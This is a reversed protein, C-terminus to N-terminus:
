GQWGEPRVSTRGPGTCPARPPDPRVPELRLSRDFPLSVGGFTDQQIMVRATDVSVAGVYGLVPNVENGVETLNGILAAPLPANLGGAGETLGRIVNLYEYAGPSICFQELDFLLGGPRNYDVRGAEIGSILSGDSFEDSSANLNGGKRTIWCRTDCLYDWRAVFRTDPGPICEGNRWRSRVCEACVTIEEFTSFRWRYFNPEGAPDRVDVRLFFAPVFRNLDESFYANQEFEVYADRIPVATPVAEPESVIVRGDATTVEVSYSRGPRARWGAPPTFTGEEIGSLTWETTQGQDDVSRVRADTLPRLVYDGFRIENRKVSVESFGPSDAMQGDVLLFGTEFQYVPEVPETCAFVSVGLLLALLRRSHPMQSIRITIVRPFTTPFFATPLICKVRPYTVIHGNPRCLYPADRQRLCAVHPLSDSEYAPSPCFIGM